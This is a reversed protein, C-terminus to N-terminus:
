KEPLFDNTYLESIPIDKKIMGAEKMEDVLTKWREESMYGLGHTEADGGFVFDKTIEQSSELHDLSYDKNTENILKNVEDGHAYYYDWGEVTAKLYKKVTDPHNKIMDETTIVVNGYPNYGLDANLFWDVDIGEGKLVYPENTAFGQTVSDKDASFGTLSGTYNQVQVKDLKYKYSLYQWFPFGTATYVKRGNLDEIKTIGSDKHFILNQPNTQLNAFITVIPIGENRALVVEDANAMAFQVKGSALLQVNSVQPGGQQLTVDLGAEEYIKGAVAAYHGGMEPQAFWSMTQTIKVPEGSSGSNSGCATLVAGLITTSAIMKTKEMTKM